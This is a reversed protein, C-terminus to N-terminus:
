FPIEEPVVDAPRPAVVIFRPREAIELRAEPWCHAVFPCYSCQWPLDAEALRGSAGCDKCAKPGRKLDTGGAKAKTQTGTGDCTECEFSPGYERAPLDHPQAMLILRVRGRAEELLGPEFPHRVEAAEWPADEGEVVRLMEVLRSSKTFRVEIHSVRRSYVVELAHCTDKRMSVYVHTDLGAAEAEVAMQVRYSYEVDGSLAKRFGGTTMSKIEVTALGYPPGLDAIGDVHLPIYLAPEALDLVVGPLRLHEAEDYARVVCGHILLHRIKKECESAQAVTLPVRFRFRGEEMGWEGPLVRRFEGRILDHIMDGFRFVLKSRAPLPTPPFAGPWLMYASQRACRGLRSGRLPSGGREDPVDLDALVRELLM